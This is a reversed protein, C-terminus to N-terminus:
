QIRGDVGQLYVRLIRFITGISKCHFVPWSVHTIPVIIYHNIPPSSILQYKGIAEITAQTTIMYLFYWSAEPLEAMLQNILSQHHHHHDLAALGFYWSFSAGVFLEKIFNPCGEFAFPLLRQSLLLSAQYALKWPLVRRGVVPNLPLLLPHLFLLSWVPMGINLFNAPSSSSKNTLDIHFSVRSCATM